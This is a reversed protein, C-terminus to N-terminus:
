DGGHSASASQWLVRRSSSDVIRVGGLDVVNLEPPLLLDAAHPLFRGHLKEFAELTDSDIEVSGAIEELGSTQEVREKARSHLTLVLKDSEKEAYITLPESAPNTGGGKFQELLDLGRTLLLKLEKPPTGPIRTSWNFRARVDETEWYEERRVPQRTSLSDPLSESFEDLAEVIRPVDSQDAVFIDLYSEVYNGGPEVEVSELQAMSPPHEVLEDFERDFSLEDELGYVFTNVGVEGGNSRVRQATLYIM